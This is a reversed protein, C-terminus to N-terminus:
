VRNKKASVIFKEFNSKKAIFPATMLANIVLPGHVDLQEVGMGDKITAGDRIIIKNGGLFGNLVLKNADLEEGKINSNVILTDAVKVKKYDLDGMLVVNEFQAKKADLSGFISVDGRQIWSLEAHGYFAEKAFASMNLSLVLFIIKSISRM